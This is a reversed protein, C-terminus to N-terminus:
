GIVPEFGMVKEYEEIMIERVIEAVDQVAIVSDFVSLGLIGMDMLRMLIANM